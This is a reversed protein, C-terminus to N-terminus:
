LVAESTSSTYFPWLSVVNLQHSLVSLIKTGLNTNKQQMDIRHLDNLLEQFDRLLLPKRSRDPLISEM